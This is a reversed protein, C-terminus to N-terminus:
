KILSELNIGHSAKLYVSKNQLTTKDVENVTKYYFVNYGAKKLMKYVKEMQKGVLHIEKFNLNNILIYKGINKHIKSSKRGLELIDGIIVIKNKMKQKFFYSLGSTMTEYSANYCDNIIFYGNQEIKEMRGNPTKYDSIGKIIKKIDMNLLLGIKISCISYNILYDLDSNITIKYKEGDIDMTYRTKKGNIINTIENSNKSFKISNKFKFKRIYKDDMNQIFYESDKTISMKEKYTNKITKFNGIHATGICTVTTITPKCINRLFEIEGMHNTGLELLIVEENNYNLLTLPVGIHNNYNGETSLVNFSTKLVNYLMERQSTKGYSGTLAIVPVNLEERRKKALNQMYTLADDVEIIIIDNKIEIAKEILKEHNKECIFGKIKSVSDLIFDHGDRNGKLPIFISNKANEKTNITFHEISDNENGNILKADEIILDKVKM